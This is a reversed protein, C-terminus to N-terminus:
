QGSIGFADVFHEIRPSPGDFVVAIVDFRAAVQSGSQALFYRATRIVQAQKKRGVANEPDTDEDSSLSKVEVFVLTDGDAAVIDIEGAPCVFNRKIITYGLRKLFHVAADEGRRGISKPTLGLLSWLSM